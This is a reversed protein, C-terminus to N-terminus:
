HSGSKCSCGKVQDEGVMEEELVTEMKSWPYRRVGWFSLICAQDLEHQVLFCIIIAMGGDKKTPRATCCLQYPDEQGLNPIGNGVKVRCLMLCCFSLTALKAINLLTYLLTNTALSTALLPRSMESNLRSTFWLM